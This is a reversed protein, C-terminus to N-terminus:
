ACAERRSTTLLISFHHKQHGHRPLNHYGARDTRGYGNNKLNTRAPELGRSACDAPNEHGAVHHWKASPAIKGIHAVRNAVFEKWRSPPARIWTFAVTSDVWLHIPANKLNLATKIQHVLRALLVAASLELRQITMKKLPAAKNKASILSVQVTNFDDLVRLYVVAEFAQQLADSFGHLELISSTSCGLWRPIRFSLLSLAQEFEKWRRLYGDPLPDNWDLNLKWLTQMMIKVTITVPTIWGLPDFIQAIKSLVTRKSAVNSSVSLALQIHFADLLPWSLGLARARYEPSLEHNPDKDHRRSTIDTLEFGGAMLLGDLQAAKQRALSVTDAGSLVDDVHM